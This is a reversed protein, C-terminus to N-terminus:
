EPFLRAYSTPAIEKFRAKMRQVEVESLPLQVAPSGRQLMSMGYEIRPLLPNQQWTKLIYDLVVVEALM